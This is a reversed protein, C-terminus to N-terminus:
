EEQGTRGSAGAAETAWDGEEDEAPAGEAVDNADVWDEDLRVLTGLYELFELEPVDGAGPAEPTDEAAGASRALVVCLLVLRWAEARARM